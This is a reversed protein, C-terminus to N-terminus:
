RVVTAASQALLADAPAPKAMGAIGSILAFTIAVSAFAAAIRHTKPTNM